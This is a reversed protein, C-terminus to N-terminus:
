DNIKREAKKELLLFDKKKNKIVMEKALKKNYFSFIIINERM